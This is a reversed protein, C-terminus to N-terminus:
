NKHNLLQFLGIKKIEAMIEVIEAADIDREGIVHAFEWPDPEYPTDLHISDPLFNDSFDLQLKPIVLENESSNPREAYLQVDDDIIEYRLKYVQEGITVTFRKNPAQQLANLAAARASQAFQTVVDPNITIHASIV